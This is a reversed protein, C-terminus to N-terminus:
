IAYPLTRKDDYRQGGLERQTNLSSGYASFPNAIGSTRNLMSPDGLSGFMSPVGSAPPPTPAPSASMSPAAGPQQTQPRRMAQMLSRREDQQANWDQMGASYRRLQDIPMSNLQADTLQKSYDVPKGSWFESLSRGIQQYPQKFAAAFGQNNVKRNKFGSWLGPAAALAMAPIGGLFPLLGIAPKYLAAQKALVDPQVGYEACKLLFGHLYAMEDTLEPATAAVKEGDPTVFGLHILLATPDFGIRQCENAFKTWYMKMNM